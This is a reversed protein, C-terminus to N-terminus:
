KMWVQIFMLPEEPRLVALVQSNIVHTDDNIPTLIVDQSRDSLPSFNPFISNVINTTINCQQPIDTQGLTANPHTSQLTGNGLELLWDCFQQEGENARMNTTLQFKIFHKWVVSRNICNELIAAPRARAVITLIQRFDGALVILKGGFPVTTPSDRTSVIDQFLLDIARSADLPIM